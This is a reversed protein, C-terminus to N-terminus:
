ARRGFRKWFPRRKEGTAPYTSTAGAMRDRRRGFCVTCGALLLLIFTVFTIWFGAGTRTREGVGLDHMKKKVYVFLAIDVAFAILTLLAALFSILSSILTVTIHTSFSLLFAVFIAATAVPHIALGRTWSSGITVSSDADTPSRLTVSYGHGEKACTRAGSDADYECHSWIGFRVEGVGDAGKGTDFTTRAIDLAPLFPLSISVIFSLALAVFLLVIGPICFARSM